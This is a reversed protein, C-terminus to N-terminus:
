EQKLWNLIEQSSNCNYFVKSFDFKRWAEAWATHNHAPLGILSAALEEVSIQDSTNGPTLFDGTIHAACIVNNKSALDLELSGFSFRASLQIDGYPSMGLNWDDRGYRDEVLQMARRRLKDPLPRETAPYAQKIGRWLENLGINVHPRLNSVRARVSAVGKSKYKAPDVLLVKELVNLDVDFLITGHLQYKGSGPAAPPSIQRSALGSIKGKGKLTIDNRGEMGAELGLSTFYALLPALVDQNSIHESRAQPLIFTFNLNGLDHYVAGGGTLRRVLSIERSSLEPLNVEARANQHRGIIVAPANQWLMFYGTGAEGHAPIEEALAQELALNFAPSNSGSEYYVLNKMILM